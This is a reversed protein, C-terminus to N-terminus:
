RRKKRIKDLNSQIDEDDEESSEERKQASFRVSKKNNGANGKKKKTQPAEAINDLSLPEINQLDSVKIVNNVFDQIAENDLQQLEQIDEFERRLQTVFRDVKQLTATTTKLQERGEALESTKLESLKKGMADVQTIVKDLSLTLANIKNNVYVASGGAIAVAALALLSEPKKMMDM